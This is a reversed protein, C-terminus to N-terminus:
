GMREILARPDENEVEEPTMPISPPNNRNKEVREYYGSRRRGEETIRKLRAKEAVYDFAVESEQSYQEVEVGMKERVAVSSQSARTRVSIVGM